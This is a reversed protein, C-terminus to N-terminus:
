GAVGRTARPPPALWELPRALVQEHWGRCTIEVDLWAGFRKLDADLVAEVEARLTPSFAPRERMQWRAKVRDRLSRPLRRRLADVLPVALLADRWASRRLRESSVNERAREQEWRPPGPSPDGIFACVRALEEDPRAVLRELFVPLVAEAGYHRLWPELQRAYSSYAVFREHRRVAGEFDGTVDRQSWEHIYQSVIRELPDRMVYVLRVRPLHRAMREPTRPHTPLKTYHTSSEGCIQDPRAGAFLGAYWAIGRAYQDDDSFFNPEKPTSLFLGPRLALQEHLSSTGCKMAGIIVFDPLREAM